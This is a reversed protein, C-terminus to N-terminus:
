KGENKNKISALDKLTKKIFFSSILVLSFISLILFIVLFKPKSNFIKDLIFWISLFVFLNWFIILSYRVFFKKM